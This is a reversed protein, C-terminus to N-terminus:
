SAPEVAPEEVLTAPYGFDVTASLLAELTTMEDDYQIVFQALQLNADYFGDVIEASAIDTIAQAAIYPCSSCYLGTVEIRTTQEGALAPGGILAALTTLVYLPNKM